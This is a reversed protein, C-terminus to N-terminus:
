ANEERAKEPMREVLLRGLIAGADARGELLRRMEAEVQASSRPAEGARVVMSQEEGSTSVVHVTRLNSKQAVAKRIAMLWRALREAVSRAEFAFTDLSEDTWSDIRRGGLLGTVGELWRQEGEPALMREVFQRLTFDRLALRHPSYDVRVQEHVGALDRVGFAEALAASALGRLMPGVDALELLAANLREVLLTADIEGTPLVANCALPLEGFVLEVPERGKALAARVRDTSSSVKRTALAYEPLRRWWLYLGEVIPKLAADPKAGANFVVLEAALRELVQRRDDAKGLHRLAFNGPSKALRMFHSGTLEPQFTGREMLAIDRRSALMYAAILLLAPGARLGYPAKGLATVLHDFRVLGADQILEGVHDWAPRWNFPDPDPRAFEFRGDAAARHMGSADFMALYITREPPAGELKLYREEASTVMLELLRMRASAVATSLRGRNILENRLVPGGAFTEDLMDSLHRSLEAATSLDLECGRDFWTSREGVSPRALDSLTRGLATEAAALRAAVEGRALDDVRLEECTDSIWRWMALEHAWKLDAAEIRQVCYMTLPSAKRSREAAEALVSAEDQDPHLPLVVIAGDGDRCGDVMTVSFTRLTGTRHYHRHAVIPRASPLRSLIGDIRSVAPVHIRAEDIWHDLDVSTSSWLSYDDRHPRRYLIRRAALRALAAEADEVAVGLCWAISAADTRLSPLPSLVAIVAVAKLVDTDLPPLGDAQILADLALQWRRERDPARLRLEGQSALYDFIRPLLYWGGPGYATRQVHDRFGHPEHSQLFGFVSRENQGFRRAMASLAAVTAPHLPYLRPAMARLETTGTHFMGRVGAAAFLARAQKAVTPLGNIPALAHSLLFLTQEASERFSIEEYREATRSWEAEIWEGLGAVYDSFRHHLLTVVALPARGRGGAREALAQFVSPDELRPHSAAFELYRGMEDVILLLGRGSAEELRVALEELAALAPRARDEGARIRNAQEAVDAAGLRTAADRIEDLLDDVFSARRGNLVIPDYRPLESGAPLIPATVRTADADGRLLKALLLAVTSKGIGYPGTIRFARQRSGPRLGHTVRLVAERATATIVYGDLAEADNLDRRLDTSRVYRRTIELHQDISGPMVM